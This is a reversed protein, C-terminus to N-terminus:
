SYFQLFPFYLSVQSLGIKLFDPLSLIITLVLPLHLHLSWTAFSYLYAWTLHWTRKNRRGCFLFISDIEKKNNSLALTKESLFNKLSHWIQKILNQMLKPSHELSSFCFYNNLTVQRLM